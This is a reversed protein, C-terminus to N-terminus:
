EERRVDSAAIRGELTLSRDDGSGSDLLRWEDAAWDWVSLQAESRGPVSGTWAVRPEDGLSAADLVLRQYPFRYGHERASLAGRLAHARWRGVREGLAGM